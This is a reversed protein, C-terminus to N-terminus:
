VAHGTRFKQLNGQLEAFIPGIVVAPGPFERADITKIAYHVSAQLCCTVGGKSSMPCLRPLGNGGAKSGRPVVSTAYEYIISQRSDRPSPTKRSSVCIGRAESPKQLELDFTGIVLDLHSQFVLVQDRAGQAGQILRALYTM